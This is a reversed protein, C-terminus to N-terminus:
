WSGSPALPIRVNLWSGYIRGSEKPDLIRRKERAVVCAVIGVLWSKTVGENDLIGAKVSEWSSCESM